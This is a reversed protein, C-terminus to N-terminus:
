AKLKDAATTLLKNILACPGNLGISNNIVKKKHTHQKISLM